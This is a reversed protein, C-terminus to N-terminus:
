KLIARLFKYLFLSWMQNTILIRWCKVFSKMKLYAFALKVKQSKVGEVVDSEAPFSEVIEVSELAATVVLDNSLNYNHMRYKCCVEQLVGVSYKYAVHTSLWYDPSHKFHEPFGGCEIFIEYDVMLSVFPVFNDKVLKSFINGEPLIKGENQQYSKRSIDSYFFECRGYVFGLKVRSNNFIKIQSELKYPLWLDDCDLFALYKGAAKEVALSRAKGLETTRSAKFYKIKNDYSHAISSSKDESANDWFIIEWNQYSQAYVSDIAEKLYKECNYCNIIVSVLPSEKNM